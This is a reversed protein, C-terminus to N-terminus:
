WWLFLFFFFFFVRRAFMDVRCTESLIPIAAKSAHASERLLVFGFFFSSLQLLTHGFFAKELCHM